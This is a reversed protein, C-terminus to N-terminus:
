PVCVRKPNLTQGPAVPVSAITFCGPVPVGSVTVSMAPLDTSTIVVQQNAPGPPIAPPPAPPVPIATVVSKALLVSGDGGSADTCTKSDASVSAGVPCVVVLVGSAYGGFTHGWVPASKSVSAATFPSNLPAYLPAACRAPFLPGPCVLVQPAALPTVAQLEQAFFGVSLAM